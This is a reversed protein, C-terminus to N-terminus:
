KATLVGGKNSIFKNLDLTSTHWDMENNNTLEAILVGESVRTNRATVSFDKGGWELQGRSNGILKDLNIESYVWDGRRDQCQAMLVPGSISIARSTDTFM